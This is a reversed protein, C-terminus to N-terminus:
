LWLWLDDDGLATNRCGPPVQHEHLGHKFELKCLECRGHARRWRPGCNCCQLMRRGGCPEPVGPPSSASTTLTRQAGHRGGSRITMVPSQRWGWRSSLICHVHSGMDYRNNSAEWGTAPPAALPPPCGCSLQHASPRHTSCTLPLYSSQHPGKYHSPSVCQHSHMM